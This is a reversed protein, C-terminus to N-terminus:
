RPIISVPLIFEFFTKRDQAPDKKLLYGTRFGLTIPHQNWWKTDFYIEMGVSQFNSNLLKADYMKTFDYFLNGRIRMIYLLNGFGWDPYTIPFHYNIGSSFIQASDNAVFGRAFPIRSGFIRDKTDDHQYSGSIVIHHNTFFGPIFFNIRSYFQWSKYLNVAHRYQLSANYGWKPYIDMRATQVQQGWRIFHYLYGYNVTRFSDKYLGLNKDNRFSFNTGVNLTYLNRGKVWNLPISLGVTKDWQNWEKYKTKTFLKQHLTYETGLTIFPFLGGYIMNAGFANARSNQNYLYYLNTQVTNLVNNGYVTFSFEPDDYNPRWSHFNFPHTLKHYPLPEPISSVQEMLPEIGTPLYFRNSVAARWDKFPVPEWVADKQLISKPKYGNSTFSSWELKSQSAQLGYENLENTKLKFIDKTTTDVCFLADKEQYSSSFYVKGNSFSIDGIVKNIPRTLEKEELTSLDLTAVSMLGNIDRKAYVVLEDTIFKPTAYFEIKEDKIEKTVNGSEADLIVLSGTGTVDIKQAVIRKGDNSIDPAFYRTKSQISKSSKTKLDYLKIVSYNKWQWRPHSEFAAYVIKGNRYSYQNDMSIDRIFLKQENENHKLIFTPRHQYSTKLYLISDNGIQYPFLYNVVKEQAIEKENVNFYQREAEFAEKVFKSFSIGANRKIASQFPYFLGKYAVAEGAVKPWFDVGYKKIGHNVLLQGLQYHNPVYDKYSGNRLKMWSYSKGDKRLAAFGNLFLPLRGRGQQSLATEIYVADGEFFWNPVAANIALSYGDGGLLIKFAKSVGRNFNNYQQVHRYEHITLQKLWPMNGQEFIDHPPTLYFESRFPSLTVYGNSVVNQNQLVISVKNLRDGLQFANAAAMSSAQRLVTYAQNQLGKPFIVRVSDNHLQQWKTAFPNGGFEQAPSASVIFFHFILVLFKKYNVIM